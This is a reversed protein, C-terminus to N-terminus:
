KSANIEVSFSATTEGGHNDTVSVTVPAKGKFDPPVNWKILGSADITMGSPATKLAYTLEDGDPDTAKIPYTFDSNKYKSDKIDSIIKPPSNFIYAFVTVPNGKENATFPTVTLYIKDGRKFEGSSLTDGSVEIKKDNISWQYAASANNKILVEAKISDEVKPSSPTLKVSVIEPVPIVKQPLAIGKKESERVAEGKKQALGKTVQGEESGKCAFLTIIMLTWIFVIKTM